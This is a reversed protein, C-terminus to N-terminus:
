NLDVLIIEPDYETANIKQDYISRFDLIFNALQDTFVVISDFTIYIRQTNDNMELIIDFGEDDVTLESFNNELSITIYREESINTPFIVSNAEKDFTIYICFDKLEENQVMEMIRRIVISLHDQILSNYLLMNNM